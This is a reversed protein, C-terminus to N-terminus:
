VDFSSLPKRWFRWRQRRELVFGSGDEADLRLSGLRGHLLASLAPELWDRSLAAVDRARRLDFLAVENTMAFQAPLSAVQTKAALGLARLLDDDSHVHRHKSSVHDPLVGGGWFWLSNVPPKSAAVRQANWPHNHLVVQAESLLARWRRGEPSTCQDIGPLHEFLDAGLADAPEAFTPLRVEKPLQLYWRQPSPADIPFGTDGFMPRLAPLLAEVDEIGLQMGEGHALLRAGNIDPRVYVPDARVWASLYADDADQQRTLAAAPWGRPLLDFHRLLQQREGPASAPSRDARGLARAVPASWRQGALRSCSPLLLTAVAM